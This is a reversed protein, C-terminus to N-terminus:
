VCVAQAQKLAGTCGRAFCGQPALHMKLTAALGLWEMFAPRWCQPQPLLPGWASPPPKLIAILPCLGCSRVGLGGQWDRSLPFDELKRHLPCIQYLTGM